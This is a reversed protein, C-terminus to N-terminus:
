KSEQYIKTAAQKATYNDFVHENLIHVEYNCSWEGCVNRSYALHDRVAASWSLNKGTDDARWGDSSKTDKSWHAPYPFFWTHCEYQSPDAGMIAAICDDAAKRRETLMALTMYDSFVTTWYGIYDYPSRDSIFYRSKDGAAKVLRDCNDLFVIRQFAMKEEVSKNTLFLREETIGLRAYTDRTSSLTVTVSNGTDAVIKHLAHLTETKGVSGAGSLLIIPM